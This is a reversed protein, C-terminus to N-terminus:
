HDNALTLIHDAVWQPEDEMLYHAATPCRRLISGAITATLFTSINATLFPDADGRLVQCPISLARLQQDITTLDHNDLCRAFHKFAKRGLPTQLPALFLNMLTDDLNEKHYLGKAVLIKFAGLDISSLIIERLIPVRLASIPQVPWMNHAVSNILTLSAFRNPHEVAMIQSIGGGLDHGVLHVTDIQLHDLLKIMRDAHAKLSYSCDLPMDSYGCGLLDLSIVEHHPSLLPVVKRWIFSYTTIGHLLLMPTGHGVRDYAIQHGEIIARQSPPAYHIM